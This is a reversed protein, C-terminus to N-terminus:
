NHIQINGKTLVGGKSYPYSPLSIEFKDAGKGPEGNDEIRIVFPYKVKGIQALGTIAGIKNNMTTAVSQINISSMDLNISDDRYKVTGSAKCSDGLKCPMYKGTIEFTADGKGTSISGGGTIKGMHFNGFDKGTIDKGSSITVNYEGNVPASQTWGNKSTESVTYTGVDIGQFSYNGNAGTTKTLNVLTNTITDTGNITVNWGALGVEGSDQIGNDNLDEFVTGLISGPPATPLGINWPDGSSSLISIVIEGNPFRLRREICPDPNTTGCEPVMGNFLAGNKFIQITNENYGIPLQSPDITFAITLPSSSTTPPATIDIEQNLFYFGSPPTQTRPSIKISVTGANLTTVAVIVPNSASPGIANPDSNVTDGAGAKKNLGLSVTLPLFDGGIQINGASNYPLLTDGLRDGSVDVGSYDSWFNGGLYPGGIINTGLTRPINWTNIGSPSDDVANLTGSNFFNNYIFNGGTLYMSIGYDNVILNNKIINSKSFELLIGLHNNSINNGDMTNQDAGSSIIGEFGNTITNGKITNKGLHDQISIGAHTFLYINNDTVENESVNFSQNHSYSDIMYIGGANNGIDNGKIINLAASDFYIAITNKSFKNNIIHGRDSFNYEIGLEWNSLATNEITVDTAETVVIGRTGIIPFNTNIMHGAGDLVVHSAFINICIPGGSINQTLVYDGPAFIDRCSNISTQSQAGSVLFISSLLIIGVISFIERIMKNM